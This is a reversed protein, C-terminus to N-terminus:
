VPQEFFEDPPASGASRPYASKPTPSTAGLGRRHGYHGRQVLNRMATGMLRSWSAGSSRGLGASLPQAYSRLRIPPPVNSATSSSHSANARLPSTSGSNM